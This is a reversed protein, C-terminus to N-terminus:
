GKLYASFRTQDDYYAGELPTTGNVTRVKAKLPKAPDTRRLCETPVSVVVRKASHSARIGDCPLAVPEVPDNVPRWTLNKVVVDGDRDRLVTVAYAKAAGKAKILLETGSLKGLKLDPIRVVGTVRAETRHVSLRTVDVAKSSDGSADTVRGSEALATAPVLAVLTGVVAGALVRTARM